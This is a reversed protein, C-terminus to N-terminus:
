GQHGWASREVRPFNAWWVDNDACRWPELDRCSLDVTRSAVHDWQVKLESNSWSYHRGWGKELDKSRQRTLYTEHRAQLRAFDLYKYHLLITEDRPPLLLRGELKAHHRGVSFNTEKIDDPSFLSPKNYHKDYMGSTITASLLDSENPFLESIMQFGLAPIFSIDNKKAKLLYESFNQHFIHEDIDTVVVWDARGKSEKWIQDQLIKGSLVRSEPDAYPPMERLDVKPHARLLDLSGDTSGDDYIIYRTVFADYHRFFFSLMPADNWCRTYLHVKM